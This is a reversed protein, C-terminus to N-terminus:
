WFSWSGTVLVYAGLLGNTVAHAFIAVRLSGTRRYLEGYALGALLGALWLRHELAFVASSILLAKWGVNRPLVELFRPRELWRMIFCRWFLEEMVPVVLTAGAVRAAALGVHVRDGVTPDFAHAEGLVFPPVDLLVWAVLVAVGVLGGAVWAAGGAARPGWIGPIAAYRPWLAILLAATLASRIGYLWRPDLTPAVADALYPEVALLGIFLAFPAVFPWIPAGASAPASRDNM